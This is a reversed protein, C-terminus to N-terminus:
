LLVHVRCDGREALDQLERWLVRQRLIVKREDEATCVTQRLGNGLEFACNGSVRLRLGVVRHTDDIPM